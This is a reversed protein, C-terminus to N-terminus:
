ERHVEPLPTGAARWFHGIAADFRLIGSSWYSAAPQEETVTEIVM